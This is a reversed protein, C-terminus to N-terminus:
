SNKDISASTKGTYAKLVGGEGHERHIFSPQWTDKNETDEFFSWFEPM